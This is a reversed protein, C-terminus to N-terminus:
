AKAKTRSGKSDTEKNEVQGQCGNKEKSFESTFDKFTKLGNGLCQYWLCKCLSVPPQFGECLLAPYVSEFASWRIHAENVCFVM